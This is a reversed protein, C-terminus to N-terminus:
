AVTPAVSFEMKDNFDFIDGINALNKQLCPQKDTFFTM